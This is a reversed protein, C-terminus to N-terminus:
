AAEVPLGAAKWEPFGDRYRRVAFGEARLARVAEFSLVCYPGRCYAVIERDRPLEALRSRLAGVTVNLARPLHGARFEDEPRVDLVTVSGEEMRAMLEEPGVPEMADLQSFYGKIVGQAEAMNRAALTRLAVIAEVVPGDRLRYLVRKGARRGTVLGARRLQQLHQSANAVSLGTRGALGEVPQEAQALLELLELRHGHGLARALAAFHGFLLRKPHESTPHESSM